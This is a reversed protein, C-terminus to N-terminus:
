SNPLLNCPKTKIRKVIASLRLTLMAWGVVVKLSLNLDTLWNGGKLPPNPPILECGM